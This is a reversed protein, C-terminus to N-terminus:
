EVQYQKQQRHILNNHTSNMSAENCEKDYRSINFPEQYLTINDEKTVNTNDGQDDNQDNCNKNRAIQHYPSAFFLIQLSSIINLNLESGYSVCSTLQYLNLRKETFHADEVVFRHHHISIVLNNYVSHIIMNKKPPCLMNFHVIMEDFVHHHSM